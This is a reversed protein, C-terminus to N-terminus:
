AKGATSGRRKRAASNNPTESRARRAPAAAATPAAAAAVVGGNAKAANSRSVQRTIDFVDIDLAQAVERLATAIFALCPLWSAALSALLAASAIAAPPTSASLPILKWALAVPAAAFVLLGSVDAVYEMGTVHALMLRVTLDTFLAGATGYFLAWHQRAVGACAPESLWLSMSGLLSVFPLQRALAQAVGSAGLLRNTRTLVHVVQGAATVIAAMSMLGLLLEQNSLSSAGSGPAAPHYGEGGAWTSFYSQVGAFATGPAIRRTEGAFTRMLDVAPTALWAAPPVLTHAAAWMNVPLVNASIVLLAAMGMVGENPGNIIPMVMEGTHYEEWTNYYFPVCAISWLAFARWGGGARMHIAASAWGLLSCNIADCGHDFLLGLPSSSGTRRAQKGDMNDMTSYVVLSLATLICSWAPTAETMNPAYHFAVAFALAQFLM